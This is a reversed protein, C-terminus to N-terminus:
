GETAQLRLDVIFSPLAYFPTQDALSCDVHKGEDGCRQDKTVLLRAPGEGVDKQPQWTVLKGAPEEMTWWNLERFFYHRRETFKNVELFVHIRFCQFIERVSVTM